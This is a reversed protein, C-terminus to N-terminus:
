AADDPDGDDIVTLAVLLLLLATESVKSVLEWTDARLHDVVVEFVGADHHGHAEIHPWFAGHELVTHWAAYGALYSVMLLIGAVYLPRRPAGNFALLVGAIIAVASLTFLLPRPDYLTGLRLYELLRPFGYTPHFLHIVAVLLALGGAVRRLVAPELGLQPSDTAM